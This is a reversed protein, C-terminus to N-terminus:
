KSNSTKKQTILTSSKRHIRSGRKNRKRKKSNSTDKGRELIDENLEENMESYENDTAPIEGKDTINQPAPLFAQNPKSFTDMLMKIIPSLQGISQIIQPVNAIVSLIGGIGSIQAKNFHIRSPSRKKRYTTNRQLKRPTRNVM